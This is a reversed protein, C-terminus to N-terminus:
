PPLPFELHAGLNVEHLRNAYHACSKALVYLIITCATFKNACFAVSCLIHGHIQKCFFSCKIYYPWTIKLRSGQYLKSYRSRECIYM